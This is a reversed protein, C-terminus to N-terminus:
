ILGFKYELEGLRTSQFCSSFVGNSLSDTRIFGPKNGDVAHSQKRQVHLTCEIQM